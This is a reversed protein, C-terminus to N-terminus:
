RAPVQMLRGFRTEPRAVGALEAMHWALAQNSSIIPKGLAAEVDSVVELTQLNTCSLFVADCDQQGVSIAARRTSSPEIRAVRVEEGEEFSGFASITLGTEELAARMTASVQQLYPTVFGLKRVKLARCASIVASLPNTVASTRCGAAVLEGVVDPGIVTAGSTCGYGVASFELSPPLLGAAETLRPKMQALAQPTVVADSAIRSVYVPPEGTPFMRAFEREITEDTQLVILGLPSAPGM